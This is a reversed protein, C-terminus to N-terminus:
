PKRENIEPKLRRSSINESMKVNPCKWFLVHDDNEEM